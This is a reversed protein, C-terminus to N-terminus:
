VHAARRNRKRTAIRRQNITGYNCNYKHTCYELNLYYNNAKVEDKHNIERLGNNDVFAEAVLRHVYYIKEVGNKCLSVAEYGDVIWPKLIRKTKRNRVHGHISVEYADNRSVIRFLTWNSRRM